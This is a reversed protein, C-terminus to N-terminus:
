FRATDALKKKAQKFDSYYRCLVAEDHYPSHQQFFNLLEQPKEELEIDEDSWNKYITDAGLLGGFVDLIYQEYETQKGFDEILLIRM